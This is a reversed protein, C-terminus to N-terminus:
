CSPVFVRLLTGGVAINECCQIMGQLPSPTIHHDVRSCSARRGYAGRGRRLDALDDDTQRGQPEHGRGRRPRTGDDGESAQAEPYPHGREPTGSRPRTHSLLLGSLAQIQTAAKVTRKLSLHKLFASVQTQSRQAPNRLHDFFISGVGIPTSRRRAVAGCLCTSACIM